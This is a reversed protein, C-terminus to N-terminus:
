DGVVFSVVAVLTLVFVLGALLAAAIVAKPDLSSADLHYDSRKRIGLFAWAVAKLTAWFSARRPPEHEPAEPGGGGHNM